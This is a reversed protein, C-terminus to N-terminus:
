IAALYRKKIIHIHHLEHGAIHYGLARVSTRNDNARGIRLLAEKSFGDFLAITAMRVAKYETMINQMSRTHTDAYATYATEEFGPLDTQDNRAFALARYAYIREDDIIHVLVEKVSWKDPAYRYNLVEDSLSAVFEETALLNDHFQQLLSGDKKVFDMYMEAYIPYEGSSPFKITKNM